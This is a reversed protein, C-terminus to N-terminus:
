NRFRPDMLMDGDEHASFVRQLLKATDSVHMMEQDPSDVRTVHVLVVDLPPLVLLLQEGTGRASYTGDPLRLRPLHEGHMASWWSYGYGGFMGLDSHARTSERVWASPLVQQEGWRGEHLMLLGFKALDSASMSFVVAPHISSEHYVYAVNSPSFATMGVPQAVYRNFADPVREGSLREFITNLTNFDWNNYFWHEGPAYRGREPRNAFMRPTEFAAPHYIGSKSMLLDRVTAAKERESLGLKDDIGLQELTANLDLEGRAALIGFLGSLLSKRVSFLGIVDDIEGWSWLIEGSRDVLLAAHTPLGSEAPDIRDLETVDWGSTGGPKESASLPYALVILLSCLRVRSFISM